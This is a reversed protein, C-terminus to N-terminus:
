SFLFSLLPRCYLRGLFTSLKVYFHCIVDIFNFIVDSKCAVVGDAALHLHSCCVSNLPDLGKVWLFSPAPYIEEGSLSDFVTCSLPLTARM